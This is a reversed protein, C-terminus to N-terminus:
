SVNSIAPNQSGNHHAPHIKVRWVEGFGGKGNNNVADEEIFPLIIQDKLQYEHIRPNPDRNSSLQLYPSLLKWQWQDFVELEHIKWHGQNEFIPILRLGDKKELYFSRTGAKDGSGDELKFPLNDDYIGAKIFDVIEAQKQILALITFIRVRTTTNTSSKTSPSQDWIQDTYDDLEDPDILDLNALERRVRSRTIIRGLADIPLFETEPKSASKRLARRLVQGIDVHEEDHIQASQDDGLDHDHIMAEYHPTLASALGAGTERILHTTSQQADSASRGHRSGRSEALYKSDGFDRIVSSGASSEHSQRSSDIADPSLFQAGSAWARM